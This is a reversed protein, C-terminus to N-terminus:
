HLQPHYCSWSVRDWRQAPRKEQSLRSSQQASAASGPTPSEPLSKVANQPSKTRAPAMPVNM